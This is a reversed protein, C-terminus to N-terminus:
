VVEVKIIRSKVFVEDLLQKYNLMTGCRLQPIVPSLMKNGTMSFSDFM